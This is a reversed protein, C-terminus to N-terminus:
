FRFTNTWGTDFRNAGGLDSEFRCGNKVSREMKGWRKPRNKTEAIHQSLSM